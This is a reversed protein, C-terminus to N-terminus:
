NIVCSQKCKSILLCFFSPYPLPKSFRNSKLILCVCIYIYIYISIILLPFSKINIHYVFAVFVFVIFKNVHCVVLCFYVLLVLLFTCFPLYVFLFFPVVFFAFLYAFLLPVVMNVNISIELLRIWSCRIELDNMLSNVRGYLLCPLAPLPTLM